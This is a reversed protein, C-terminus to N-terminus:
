RLYFKIHPVCISMVFNLAKTIEINVLGKLGCNKEIGAALNPM